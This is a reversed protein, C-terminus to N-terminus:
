HSESALLAGSIKVGMQVSELVLIDSTKTRSLEYSSGVCSLIDQLNNQNLSVSFDKGKIDSVTFKEKVSGATSKATLSVVKKTLDTELTAAVSEEAISSVSKLANGLANNSVVCSTHKPLNVLNEFMDFTIQSNSTEILTSKLYETKSMSVCFTENIYLAPSIEIVMIFASVPLSIESGTKAPEELKSKMIIGHFSDALMVSLDSKKWSARAVLESKTVHDKISQLIKKLSTSNKTIPSIDIKSGEKKWLESFEVNLTSKLENANLEAQVSKSSIKLKQNKEQLTVSGTKNNTIRALIEHDYFFEDLKDGSQLEIKHAYVFNNSVFKLILNNEVVMLSTQKEKASSIIRKGALLAHNLKQIDVTIM